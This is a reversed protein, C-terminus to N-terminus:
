DSSAIIMSVEAVDAAPGLWGQSEVGVVYGTLGNQYGTGTYSMTGSGMTLHVKGTCCWGREFAELADKHMTLKWRHLRVGGWSYGYGRRWRFSDFKLERAYEIQTMEAGMLWIAGAPIFTSDYAGGSSMTYNTDTETTLGTLVGTRDFQFAGGTGATFRVKGTATDLAVRSGHDAYIAVDIASLWDNFQLYNEPATIVGGGPRTVSRQGPLGTDLFAYLFGNPAPATITM